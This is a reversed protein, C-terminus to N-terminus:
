WVYKLTSLMMWEASEFLLRVQCTRLLHNALVVKELRVKVPAQNLTIFM